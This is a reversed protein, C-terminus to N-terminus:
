GTKLRGIEALTRDKVNQWDHELAWARGAEGMRLREGADEVLRAIASAVADASTGDVILGTRGDIVAEAQGGNNGAVSPLGAAAAELFVIGFGEIMEGVRISPMAYIDAASYMLAKDSEAIKGTFRVRDSMGLEFALKVLGEREEGDGGCLYAVPFGRQVLRAVARMVMAHNKRPEMRGLTFVVVTDASWGWRARCADREISSRSFAAVDVGPHICTITASPCLELVLRRTSESNAIVLDSAAYVRRAILKLQLSSRSVLVEEGHAYTILLAPRRHTLRHLYAAFGEPFARLSHLRVASNQVLRGILAAHSFFNAWCRLSRVDVDSIPVVQRHIKLSGHDRRDFERQREADSRNRSYATTLVAVPAPWRRYVEYAWTHAGGVTPHFDNSVLVDDM